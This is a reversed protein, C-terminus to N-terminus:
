ILVCTTDPVNRKRVHFCCKSVLVKFGKAFYYEGKETLKKNKLEETSKSAVSHPGFKKM